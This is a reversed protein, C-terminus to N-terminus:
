AAALAAIQDYDFAGRATLDRAIDERDTQKFLRYIQVYTIETAIGWDIMRAYVAHAEDFRDLQALLRAHAQLLRPSGHTLSLAKELHMLADARTQPVRRLADSVMLHIEIYAHDMEALQAVLADSGERDGGDKLRRALEAVYCPHDGALAVAQRMQNLGLGPNGNAYLTDSLRKRYLPNDPEANRAARQLALATDLDGLARAYVGMLSDMATSGRMDKFNHQTKEAEKRIKSMNTFARGVRKGTVFQWDRVAIDWPYGQWLDGPALIQRAQDNLDEFWQRSRPFFVRLRRAFVPDFPLFSDPTIVGLSRAVNQMGMSLPEMPAVWNATILHKRALAGDGAAMAALAAYSNVLSIPEEIYAPRTYALDRIRACDAVHGTAVALQNMLHYTYSKDLGRAVQANLVKRARAVQGKGRLHDIMFPLSQGIDGFNLFLDSGAELRETLLDMAAARDKPSLADQVAVVAGGGILAATQSFASSPPGYIRKCLSMAYLELFDRGTMTLDTEGVVADFTTVRDSVACLRDIEEPTDSFVLVRASPDELTRALHTEYFERPIYKDSWLKNSAIPHHIIDGRRIHYATLTAGEFAADIRRRVAEVPAALELAALAQPLAARVADADEWPMVTVGMPQGSFYTQGGQADKLFQAKTLSAPITTLDVAHGQIAPMLEVDSLNRAVFDETFLDAPNKMEPRTLGHTTWCIHWPLDHSQALRIANLAAVLRAGLGDNRHSVITGPALKKM